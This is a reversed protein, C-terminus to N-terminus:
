ELYQRIKDALANKFVDPNNRVNGFSFETMDTRTEKGDKWKNVFLSSWTVEYRDAIEEGESTSMDVVRFVLTGDKLEDAFLSNIVEQTNSEIAKCTACRQKGHFYLVEVRDKGDSEADASTSGGSCSLLGVMLAFIMLAKKM